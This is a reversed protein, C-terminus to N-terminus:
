KIGARQPSCMDATEPILCRPTADLCPPRPRCTTMPQNSFKFTSLMQNLITMNEDYATQTSHINANANNYLSYVKNGKPIYVSIQSGQVPTTVKVSTIGAVMVDEEQIHTAITNPDPVISKDILWTHIEMSNPNDHVTISIFEPDTPTAFFNTTVGNDGTNTRWAPPYQVSYSYITNTYIQWDEL